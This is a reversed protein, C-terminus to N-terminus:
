CAWACAQWYNRCVLAFYTGTLAALALASNQGVHILAFFRPFAAAALAVTSTHARLNPLSAM